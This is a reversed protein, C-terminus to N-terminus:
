DNEILTLLIRNVQPVGRMDRSKIELSKGDVEVWKTNDLITINDQTYKIQINCDGDYLQGGTQWNLIDHNVWFVHGLITAGSYIPIYYSGSCVECFSDTSTGTTPDLNCAPCESSGALVYFVVDRGIAERIADTIETTNTPWTITVM